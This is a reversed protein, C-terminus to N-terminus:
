AHRKLEVEVWGSVMKLPPAMKRIKVTVTVGSWQSLIEDCIAEALRELLKKSPGQMVRAVVDSVDAYNITDQIRDSKGAGRLDLELTVDVTFEQAVMQEHELVGHCVQFRLDHLRITDAMDGGGIRWLYPRGSEPWKM